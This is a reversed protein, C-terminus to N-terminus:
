ETRTHLASPESTAPIPDCDRLSNKGVSDWSPKSSAIPIHRSRTHWVTGTSHQTSYSTFVTPTNRYHSSGDPRQSTPMGDMGGRELPHCSACSVRRNKSLSVDDFLREGISAQKLDGSTNLPIPAIPEPPQATDAHCPLLLAAAIVISILVPVRHSTSSKAGASEPPRTSVSQLLPLM